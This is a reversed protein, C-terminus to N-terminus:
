DKEFNIEDCDSLNRKIKNYISINSNKSIILKGNTLTAADLDAQTIDKAILSLNIKIISSYDSIANINTGKETEIEIEFDENVIVSVPIIKGTGNTYKGTLYFVPTQQSSPTKHAELELSIENYFGPQLTVEGIISNPDFLNVLKPGKWKYNYSIKLSSSTKTSDNFNKFEQKKAKFEIESVHMLCTDWTFNQTTPTTSKVSFTKNTAQMKLKLSYTSDNEKKCSVFSIGTALLLLSFFRFKKIIKM